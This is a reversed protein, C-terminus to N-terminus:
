QHARRDDMIRNQVGMGRRVATLAKRSSCISPSLSQPAHNSHFLAANIPKRPVIDIEANLHAVANLAVAEPTSRGRLAFTYWMGCFKVGQNRRSDSTTKDSPIRYRVAATNAWASPRRNRTVTIIELFDRRNKAEAAKTGALVWLYHAGESSRVWSNSGVGPSM